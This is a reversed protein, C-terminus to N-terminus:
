MFRLKSNKVSHHSRRTKESTSMLLTSFANAFSKQHNLLSLFMEKVSSCTGEGQWQERDWGAKTRPLHLMRGNGDVASSTGVADSKDVVIRLHYKILIKHFMKCILAYRHIYRKMRTHFHISLDNWHATNHVTNFFSETVSFMRWKFIEAGVNNSNFFV